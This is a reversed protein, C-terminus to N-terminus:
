HGRSSRRSAACGGPPRIAGEAAGPGRVARTTPPPTPPLTTIALSFTQVLFQPTAVVPVSPATLFSSVTTASFASQLVQTQGSANEIVMMGSPQSPNQPDPFLTFTNPAGQGQINGGGITGRVGITAVPTRITMPSQGPATSAQMLPDQQMKNIEGSVFLFAGQLVSLNMVGRRAGPDFAFRDLLMRGNENLSMTTRDAFVIGVASRGSTQLLEGQFVEDGVQLERRSGDPRLATVTGTLREVRGIPGADSAAAPAPGAQAVQVPGLTRALSLALDGEVRHGEDSVLLPPEAQVFYGRIVVVRGDDGTLVLDDGRRAYTAQLLFEGGPIVLGGGAAADIEVRGGTGSGPGFPARSDGDGTKGSDRDVPRSRVESM